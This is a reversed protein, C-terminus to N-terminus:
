EEGILSPTWHKSSREAFWDRSQFLGLRRAEMAARRYRMPPVKSTWSWLLAGCCTSKFHLPMRHRHPKGHRLDVRYTRLCEQCVATTHSSM